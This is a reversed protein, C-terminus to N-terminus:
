QSIPHYVLLLLEFVKIIHMWLIKFHYNVSGYTILFLASTHLYDKRKRSKSLPLRNKCKLMLIESTRPTWLGQFEYGSEPLTPFSNLKGMGVWLTSASNSLLCFKWVIRTMTLRQIPLHQPMEIESLLSLWTKKRHHRLDFSKPERKTHPAERTAGYCLIWRGTCSICSVCTWDRPWSSGRSYSIAVRELIRKKKKKNYPIKDYM